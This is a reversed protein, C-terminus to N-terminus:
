EVLHNDSDMSENQFANYKITSDTQNQGSITKNDEKSLM